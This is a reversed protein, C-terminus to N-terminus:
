DIVGENVQDGKIRQMLSGFWNFLRYRLSPKYPRAEPFPLPKGIAVLPGFIGGLGGTNGISREMVHGITYKSVLGESDFVLSCAQPPTEFKIGTPDAFLFKGLHTGTAQYLINDINRSSYTRTSEECM